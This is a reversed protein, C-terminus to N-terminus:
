DVIYQQVGYETTVIEIGMSRAYDIMDALIDAENQQFHNSSTHITWVMWGTGAQSLNDLLAQLHERTLNSGADIGYRAINYRQTSYKQNTVGAGPNFAYGYVMEAANRCKYVTSSNGCYVLCETSIGNIMLFNKMKQYDYQIACQEMDTVKVETLHDWSHSVIEAGNLACRRISEVSMAFPMGVHSGIVASAIPAKKEIIVPLLLTEFKAYGDDDIITLMPAPYTLESQAYIHPTIVADVSTGKNVAMRIQLAVTDEPIKFTHDTVAQSVLVSSVGGANKATIIFHIGEVRNLVLRYQKGAVMGQPLSDKHIAYATYDEATGTVHYGGEVPTFTIGHGTVTAQRVPLLDTQPDVPRGVAAEVRADIQEETWTKTAYPDLKGDDIFSAVWEAESLTGGNDLYSQYASKGDKGDVGDKGDAGPKGQPGRDGIDGKNGPAGAAGIDGKEGQPGQARTDGKEGPLGPEGKEGQIGPEGREGQIGQPGVAGTCASLSCVTLWAAMIIAFRKAKYRNMM